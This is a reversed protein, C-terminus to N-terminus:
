KTKEKGEAKRRGAGECERSAEQRVSSDTWPNHYHASSALTVAYPHYLPVEKEDKAIRLGEGGSAFVACLVALLPLVAKAM